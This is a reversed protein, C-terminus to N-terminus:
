VSGHFGEMKHVGGAIMRSSAKRLKVPLEAPAVSQYSQFILAPLLTSPLGNFWDGLYPDPTM